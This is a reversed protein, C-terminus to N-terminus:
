EYAPEHGCYERISAFIKKLDKEFDLYPVYGVQFEHNFLQRDGFFYLVDKNDDPLNSDITVLEYFGRENPVVDLVLVAHSIIGPLQLMAFAIQKKKVVEQYFRDMNEKLEQEDLESSGRIGHLWGLRFLSDQRQWRDLERQLVSGFEKSFAAFDRYGPIEVVSDMRTLKRILKKAEKQSPRPLDPRYVTLYIAARQLRSHWWCVGRSLIGGSNKFYIRSGPDKAFDKFDDLTRSCFEQKVLDDQPAAGVLEGAHLCDPQVALSFLAVLIYSWRNM